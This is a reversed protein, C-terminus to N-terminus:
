GIGTVDEEESYFWILYFADQDRKGASQLVFDDDGNGCADIMLIQFVDQWSGMM